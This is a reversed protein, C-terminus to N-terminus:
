QIEGSEEVLLVNSNQILFFILSQESGSVSHEPRTKKGGFPKTSTAAM